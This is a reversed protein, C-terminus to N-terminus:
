KNQENNLSYGLEPESTCGASYVHFTEDRESRQAELNEVAAGAATGTGSRIELLDNDTELNQDSDRTGLTTELLDNDTELHESDTVM